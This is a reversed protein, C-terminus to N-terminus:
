FIKVCQSRSLIAEIKWVVYEFANEQISVYSSRIWHHMYADSPSLAKFIVFAM